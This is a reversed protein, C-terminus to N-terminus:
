GKGAVSWSTDAIPSLEIVNRDPEHTKARAQQRRQVAAFMTNESKRAPGARPQAVGDPPKAHWDAIMGDFYKLPVFRKNREMWGGVAALCLKLNWNRSVWVACYATDPFQTVGSAEYIRMVSQRCDVLEAKRADANTHTTPEIVPEATVTAPHIPSHPRTFSKSAAESAPHVDNSATVTAPHIKYLNITSRGRREQEVTLFGADVLLDTKRRISRISMGTDGCLREQSPWCQCHEDAYNAMCLLLSKALPDGVQAGIAITMAQFSM